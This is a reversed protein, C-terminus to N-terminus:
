SPLTYRREIVGRIQARSELPSLDTRSEVWAAARALEEDKLVDRFWRSYDGRRLHHMWTADDLGEALQTFVILNQARLNLKGEGGRFYFSRDPGLEGEVYKRQHRLREQRGLVPRIRVPPPAERCFWVVAENPTAIGRPAPPPRRGLPFCFSRITEAPDRGVAVVLDVTRLVAPAVHDPHVTILLVGGLEQPLERPALDQASPLLHHAEDVVVWHPRGTRVRMEQLRPLLSRFFAPRDALSLGLLNVIAHEEANELLQLIEPLTPARQSSGLTMAHHISDHHDGEPDIICCQYGREVFREILGTAITSKGSGSPGALLLTQGYPSFRVEAGDERTGLLIGHRAPALSRLDDALIRDVVEVVGEGDAGATVLDARERLTPLANGVAVAFESVALLAHDNEADGVAVLNHTSIGLETLAAHLGTGKNVGSPLVMVSGRNFIVHLELEFDRILELVTTEHPHWTAVIVRGTSLPQVGRERLAEIFRAPPLEGFWREERTSPRFLVAGNEAVVFAFLDNRPLVRLLDELQRGTVLVLQRGSAHFRELASIVDPAVRGEAALTGDYDCALAMYRMEM